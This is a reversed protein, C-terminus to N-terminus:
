TGFVNWWRYWCGRVLQVSRGPRGDFRGTSCSSPRWWASFCLAIFITDSCCPEVMAGARATQVIFTNISIIQGKFVTHYTQVSYNKICKHAIFVRKQLFLLFRSLHTLGHPSLVLSNTREVQLDIHFNVLTPLLFCVPIEWSPCRM